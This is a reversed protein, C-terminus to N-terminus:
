ENSAEKIWKAIHMKEIKRAHKVTAPDDKNAHRLDLHHAGGEIVIAVLSKSLSKLVGGGSWPDLNGNSFVINSAAKIRKGGYLTQAWFPRTRVGYQEKCIAAMATLNFPTPEFMDHVGDMCVPLVMETCSQFNWGAIGLHSTADQDTNFCKSNGTHNFYVNLGKAIGRILLTDNALPKQLSACVAKVPKAPLPELFNAPYPYDVEALNVWISSLWNVLADVDSPSKLPNCLKLTTSLTHRGSKTSGLKRIVKWSNRINKPCEPYALKFTNTVISSFRDCPTLGELQWIPASAAIAGDVINPYKIRLWATLMGGYSGGFAIVSSNQTGHTEAKFDVIFQAFDALAQESSLYALHEKDKFSDKGFPLTKGYYRHEVFILMANFEPAIDWMFGTNKAFWTIDGENGTYFFIPSGKKWYKQSILYRQQFKRDDAPSFHDLRQKFYKTQYKVNSQFSDSPWALAHWRIM